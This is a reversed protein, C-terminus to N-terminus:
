QQQPQQPLQPPVVPVFGNMSTSALPVATNNTTTTSHETTVSTIVPHDTFTCKGDGGVRIVLRSTPNPPPPPLPPSSSNTILRVALMRADSNVLVYLIGDKSTYLHLRGTFKQYFLTSVNADFTIFVGDIWQSPKTKVLVTSSALLAFNEQVWCGFEYCTLYQEDPKLVALSSSATTTLSSKSKFSLTTTTPLSTLPQTSTSNGNFTVRDKVEVEHVVKLIEDLGQVPLGYGLMPSKCPQTCCYLGIQKDDQKQKIVKRLCELCCMHGNACCVRANTVTNHCISCLILQRITQLKNRHEALTHFFNNVTISPEPSSEPSLKTKKLLQSALFMSTECHHYLWSILGANAVGQSKNNLIINMTARYEPPLMSVLTSM